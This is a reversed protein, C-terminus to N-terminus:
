KNMEGVRKFADDENWIGRELIRDENNPDVQNYYYSGDSDQYIAFEGPKGQRQKREPHERIFKKISPEPVNHRRFIARLEENSKERFVEALLHQFGKLKLLGENKLQVVLKNLRDQTFYIKIPDIKTMGLLQGFDRLARLQLAYDTASLKFDFDVKSGAPPPHKTLFDRCLADVRKQVDADSNMRNVDVFPFM